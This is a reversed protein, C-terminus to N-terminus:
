SRWFQLVSYDFLAECLGAAEIKYRLMFEVSEQQVHIDMYIVVNDAYTPSLIFSKKRHNLGWFKSLNYTKFVAVKGLSKYM